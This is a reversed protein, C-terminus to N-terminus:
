RSWCRSASGARSAASATCSRTTRGALTTLFWAFGAAVLLVGFRAFPPRRLAYAGVGLPAGVMLARAAAEAWRAEGDAGSLTVAVTISCLM